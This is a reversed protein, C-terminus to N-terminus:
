PGFHLKFITLNYAPREIVIEERPQKDPNSKRRSPRKKL